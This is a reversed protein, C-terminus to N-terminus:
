VDDGAERTEGRRTAAQARIRNADVGLQDCVEDLSFWRSRRAVLEAAAELVAWAAADRTPDDHTM